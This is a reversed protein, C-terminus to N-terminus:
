KLFETAKEMVFVADEMRLSYGASSLLIDTDQASLDLVVAFTIVTERKPRVKGSRIKSFAQKSIGAKKYLDVESMGRYDRYTRLVDFFSANSAISVKNGHLIERKKDEPIKFRPVDVAFREGLLSFGNRVWDNHLTSRHIEDRIMKETGELEKLMGLIIGNRMSLDNRGASEEHSELFETKLVNYKEKDLLFMEDANRLFELPIHFLLDDKYYYLEELASNLSLAFCAGHENMLVKVREDLNQCKCWQTSSPLICGCSELRKKLHGLDSTMYYHGDIIRESACESVIQFFVYEDWEVAGEDNM